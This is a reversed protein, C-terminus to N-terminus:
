RGKIPQSSDLLARELRNLREELNRNSEELKAIREDKEKVARHLEQIAAVAHITAPYTDVQLIKEGGPLKDGSETVADPFVEAFEQAIVNYYVTDELCSHAKRYEDTYRFAVPRIRSITELANTITRVRTKIRRDSNALWSGATTKSATGDVELANVSPVRDIGVKGNIWSTLDASIHVNNASVNRPAYLTIYGGEFHNRGSLEVRPDTFGSDGFIRIEGGQYGDADATGGSMTITPTEQQNRLWITGGGASLQQAINVTESGQDDFLTIQGGGWDGTGDILVRTGANTGRVQVLGAGGSDGDLFLGIQGDGQYVTIAGGDNSAADGDLFVGRSGDTQNVSVFGGNQASSLQMNAVGSPSYLSVEAFGTDGLGDLAVRVNGNTDYVNILGAGSNDGDVRAGLNGAATYLQLYGGGGSAGLRGALTDDSNRVEAQGGSGLRYLRALSAGGFVDLVNVGGLTDVTGLEGSLEMRQAGVGNYFNMRGGSATGIIDARLGGTGSFVSFTGGSNLGGALTLTTEHGLADQLSVRGGTLGPLMVLQAVGDPGNLAFSSNTGNLVISPHGLSTHFLRLQSPTDPDGLDLLPFLKAGTVAGDGIEAADVQGHLVREGDVSIGNGSTEFRVGSMARVAFQNSRTSSFDTDTADAWVFAGDHLARGRYGAAFSYAGAAFNQQGGPVTAHHASVVNSFGGGIAGAPGSVTNLLGGAIASSVAASNNSYGGSVTSFSGGATNNLGGAITAFNTTANNQQGGGVSSAYGGAVNTWGGAVSSFLGSARNLQGGAVTASAGWAANEFGGGVTTHVNTAQNRIGGAVVTGSELTLNNQGGGIVSYQGDATNGRGGAIISYISSTAIRNSLGGAIVTMGSNSEITNRSGSGIFAGSANLMVRNFSGNGIMAADSENTNNFGGAITALSATVSHGSGIRLRWGVFDQFSTVTGTFVPSSNLLAVNASLRADAVTGSVVASADHTHDSRAATESAGSTGFNVSFQNANLSLGAGASYTTDNDVGDAFGTPVGTLTGWSVSPVASASLAHLAYPVPMVRQRPTLVTFDGTNTGPRTSIELWYAAGDFTNNGFDIATTFVGNSVAVNENTHATGLPAGGLEVSYLAFRFDYSGTAPTGAELLRGQYSFASGLPAALANTSLTLTLLLLSLLTRM